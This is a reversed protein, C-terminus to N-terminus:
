EYSVGSFIDAWGSGWVDNIKNKRKSLTEFLLSEIDLNGLERYNGAFLWNEPSKSSKLIWDFDERDELYNSILLTPVGAFEAENLMTGFATVFASSNDVLDVTTSTTELFTIDPNQDQLIKLNDAFSPGPLVLLLSRLYSDRISNLFKRTIHNPDTGGFSVLVKGKYKSKLYISDIARRIFFYKKGYFIQIKKFELLRHDEMPNIYFNPFVLKDFEGAWPRMTDVAIKLCQHNNIARISQPLEIEKSDVVLVKVSAPDIGVASSCSCDNKLYFDKQFLNTYCCLLNKDFNFKSKLYYYLSCVRYLHGLGILKEGSAYLVIM